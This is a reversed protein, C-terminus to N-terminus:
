RGGAPPDLHALTKAATAEADKVCANVSIGRYSSGTLLLGPWADLRAEIARLRAPHGPVYQAIARAHRFVATLEPAGRLGFLGRLEALAADRLEDDGADLVHRDRPGGVMARILIRGAPARDAFVSSSWLAGLLRRRERTPILMGFGDLAHAVRSRESG